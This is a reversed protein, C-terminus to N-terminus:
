SLNKGSAMSVAAPSPVPSPRSCKYRTKALFVELVVFGDIEGDGMLRKDFSEDFTSLGIAKRLREIHKIVRQLAKDKVQTLLEPRAAEDIDTSRQVYFRAKEEVESELSPPSPSPAVFLNAGMDTFMRTVDTDDEPLVADLASLDIAPCLTNASVPSSSSM